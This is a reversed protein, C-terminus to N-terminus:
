GSRAGRRSGVPLQSPACAPVSGSERLCAKVVAGEKMLQHVAGSMLGSQVAGEAGAEAIVEVAPFFQDSFRTGGKRQAMAPM